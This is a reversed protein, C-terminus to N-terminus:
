GRKLFKRFFDFRSSSAEAAPAEKPPTTTEAAPTEVEEVTVEPTIEEPSPEVEPAPIEEIEEVAAPPPVEEEEVTPTEEVVPASEEALSPPTLEAETPIEELEAPPTEEPLVKEEITVEPTVEEPSPEVEPAPIEVEEVAAAPPVEEEEVTPTEEVVPASEEAPSPPTLEAETPIEEVTPEEPISPQTLEVEVPAVEEPPAPKIYNPDVIGKADAVSLEGRVLKSLTDQGNPEYDILRVTSNFANDVVNGEEDLFELKVWSQGAPFGTLYIPQWTDTLFSQGNVTVRVRWDKIEDETDETAVIHLPANTLYFDLLIPEAGYSGQPRSYTLLPKATEPARDSTPTFIHFTTQAYAGENKFSEEWPRVAFVRLTHTGPELDAFIIPEDPNYVAREPQNDLILELHPGMELEPNKFIPLDRVQLKVGLTTNSLVEDAKPSLIAVQPQYQELESRLQQLVSPPAVEALKVTSSASSPRDPPFEGEIRDGCGALGWSLAIAVFGFLIRVWFRRYNSALVRDGGLFYL